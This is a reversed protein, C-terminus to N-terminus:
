KKRKHKAPTIDLTRTTLFTAGNTKDSVLLKASGRGHHASLYHKGAKTLHVTLKHAGKSTLTFKGTGLTITKPHRKKRAAAAKGSETITITVTVTCPVVECTITITISTGTSSGGGGITNAATVTLVESGCASASAANHADGSYAAQWYYTGPALATTVASSPAAVGGTVATTGGNFVESAATCSSKSFLAYTATGTAISANTGTLTARDTEGVTGAPITIAAGTSSGSTQSTTLTDAAPVPTALEQYNVPQLFVQTGTGPNYDYAVEAFGGGVGAIVGHATYPIPSVVPGGWNAGGNPSYDLV